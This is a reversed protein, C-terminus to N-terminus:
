NAITIEVCRVWRFNNVDNTNCCSKHFEGQSTQELGLYKAVDSRCFLDVEPGWSNYHYLTRDISEVLNQVSKIEVKKHIALAMKIYITDDQM